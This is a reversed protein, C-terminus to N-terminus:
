VAHTMVWATYRELDGAPRAHIAELLLGLDRECTSYFRAREGLFELDSETDTMNLEHGLISLLSRGHGGPRRLVTARSM